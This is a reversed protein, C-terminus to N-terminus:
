IILSVFGKEQKVGCYAWSEEVGGGATLGGYCIKAEKRWGLVRCNRGYLASGALTPSSCLIDSMAGGTLDLKFREM